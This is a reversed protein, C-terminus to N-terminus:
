KEFEKPLWRCGSCDWGHAQPYHTTEPTRGIGTGDWTACRDVFWRPYWRAVPKGNRRSGTLHWRGEAFPPRNHCNPRM